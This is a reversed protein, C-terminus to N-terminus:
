TIQTAAKSGFLTCVLLDILNAQGSYIETFLQVLDHTVPLQQFAVFHAASTFGKFARATSTNCHM